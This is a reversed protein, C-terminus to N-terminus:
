RGWCLAASRVRVTSDDSATAYKLDSPAFALARVAERHAVGSKVLELNTKWYRVLGGDDGSLLFNGNHAFCM